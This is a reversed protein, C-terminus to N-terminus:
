SHTNMRSIRYLSFKESELLKNVTHSWKHLIELVSKNLLATQYTFCWMQQQEYNHNTIQVIM